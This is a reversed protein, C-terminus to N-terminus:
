ESAEIAPLVFPGILMELDPINAKDIIQKAEALSSVLKASTLLSAFDDTNDSGAFLLQKVKAKDDLGADTEFSLSDHIAELSFLAVLLPFHFAQTEVTIKGSYVQQLLNYSNYLRKIQRPNRLDYHLLWTYFAVKQDSTLEHKIQANKIDEEGEGGQQRNRYQAEVDVQKLSTLLEALTENGQEDDDAEVSEEVGSNSGGDPETDPIATKANAMLLQAAVSSFTKDNWIEALYEAVSQDDPEPLYIPLHVIKGL